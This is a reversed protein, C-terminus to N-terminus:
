FQSAKATIPGLWSKISFPFGLSPHPGAGPDAPLGVLLLLQHWTGAVPAKGGCLSLALSPHTCPEEWVPAM